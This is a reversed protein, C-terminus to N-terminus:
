SFETAKGRVGSAGNQYFVILTDDLAKALPVSRM